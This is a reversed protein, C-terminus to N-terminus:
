FPVGDSDLQPVDEPKQKPIIGMISLLKKYHDHTNGITPYCIAKDKWFQMEAIAMNSAITLLDKQLSLIFEDRQKTQQPLERVQTKQSITKTEFPIWV